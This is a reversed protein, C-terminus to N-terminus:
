RPASGASPSFRTATRSRTPSSCSPRPARSPACRISSRFETSRYEKSLCDVLDDESMIGLSYYTLM